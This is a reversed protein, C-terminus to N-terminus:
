GRGRLAHPGAQAGPSGERHPVPTAQINAGTPELWVRVEPRAAQGSEGTGSWALEFAEESSIEHVLQSRDTLRQAIRMRWYVCPQGSAPSRLVSAGARALGEFTVAPPAPALATDAMTM